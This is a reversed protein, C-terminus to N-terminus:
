IRIMKSVFKKNNFKMIKISTGNTKPPFAKKFDVSIKMYSVGSSGVIEELNKKPSFEICTGYIPHFFTNWDNPNTNPNSFLNSLSVRSYIGRESITLEEICSSDNFLFPEFIDDVSKNPRM